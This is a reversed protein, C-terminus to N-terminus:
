SASSAEEKKGSLRQQAEAWTIKGQDLDELIQRREDPGPRAPVEEHGPEFGMVRLIDNFRNRLTPYSLKMEEEMRNFKGECRIFTLVFQMQEPTLDTFPNRGPVFQGEITIDCNECHLRTVMLEGNCVPCRPLKQNM